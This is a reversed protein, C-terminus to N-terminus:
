LIFIVALWKKGNVNVSFYKELTKPNYSASLDNLDLIFVSLSLSEKNNIKAFYEWSNLYFQKKNNPLCIICM